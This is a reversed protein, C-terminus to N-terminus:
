IARSCAMSQFSSSPPQAEHACGLGQEYDSADATSGQARAKLDERELGSRFSMPFCWRSNGGKLPCFHLEVSRNGIAATRTAHSTQNNIGGSSVDTEGAVDRM